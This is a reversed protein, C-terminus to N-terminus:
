TPMHADCYICRYSKSERDVLRFTQPLAPETSTICRPNECKVVHVIREPLPCKRKHITTGDKIVSVTVNPDLYGLMDLNVDYDEDIKIIDKRGMKASKCNKIVAVQCLLKDMELFRYIRMANGARIHDVVIGNQISDINM